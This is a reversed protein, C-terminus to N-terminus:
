WLSNPYEGQAVLAKINKEVEPADEKYTVGFWESQTPIVKLASDPLTIFKAAVDVVYIEAKLQHLNKELFSEFM